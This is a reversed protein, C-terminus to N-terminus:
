RATVVEPPRQGYKELYRKHARKVEEEPIEEPKGLVKAMLITKASVEAIMAAKVADEVSKGLAFVGHQKVLAVSCEGIVHLIAKGIEETGVPAYETCPIPAGFEDAMQTLLMPISQGVAAFATAYPSHTHVIGNVEPKHRYLYLHTQADVSPSLDGEVVNGQMDMVVMMEPHLQDYRVGSPKILILGSAADRLSVNGNSWVVLGNKFLIEHLEWLKKKLADFM